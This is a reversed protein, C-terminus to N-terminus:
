RFADAHEAAWQAFTRPPRGTVQEVTPIVTYGEPPTNGHVMVFFDITDKNLSAARWQERAQEETLEIYRIDRGIAAGITRVLERPTLAQPGTLTYTKGAHGDELLVSAAVAGLDAEHIMASRRSSFGDRVVGEARISPAWDLVGSMFEVPKLFTWALDSSEVAQVVSGPEGGLL